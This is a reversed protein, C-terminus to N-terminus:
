SKKTIVTGSPAIVYWLGGNLKLAQGTASGAAADSVYTYLPWGNYIVVRGGSPNPDSGLLSANVQGSAAPKDGSPLKVPPWVVACGSTCTVKSRKDPAFTYLTQGKANVLVVGLGPVNRSTIVITAAASTSSKKVLVTASKTAKKVEIKLKKELASTANTTKEATTPTNTAATTAAPSTRPVATSTSSSSSSGCATVALALVPLALLVSLKKM